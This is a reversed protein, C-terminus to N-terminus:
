VWHLSVVRDGQKLTTVGDGVADVVGAIESNHRM